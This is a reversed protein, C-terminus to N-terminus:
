AGYGVKGMGEYVATFQDYRWYTCDEGEDTLFYRREGVAWDADEIQRGALPGGSLTVM